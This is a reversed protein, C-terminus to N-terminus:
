IPQVLDTFGIGPSFQHSRIPRGNTLPKALPNQTSTVVFASARDLGEVTSRSLCTRAIHNKAVVRAQPLGLTALADHIVAAPATEDGPLNPSPAAILDCTLGLLGPDRESLFALVQRRLIETTSSM